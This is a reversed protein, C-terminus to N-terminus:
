EDFRRSLSDELLASPTRRSIVFNSKKNSHETSHKQPNSYLSREFDNDL